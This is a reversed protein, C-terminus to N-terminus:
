ESNDIGPAHHIIDEQSLNGSSEGLLTKRIAVVVSLINTEDDPNKLAQGLSRYVEEPLWMALEWALQNTKCYDVPSSQDSLDRAIAMYEAVREAQERVKLEWRLKEIFVSNGKQLEAKLRESIWLTALFQIIGLLIVGLGIEPLGLEFTM